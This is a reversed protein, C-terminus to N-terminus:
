PSIKMLQKGPGQNRPFIGAVGCTQPPGENVLPRTQDEGGNNSVSSPENADNDLAPFLDRHAAINTRMYGYPSRMFVLFIFLYFYITSDYRM